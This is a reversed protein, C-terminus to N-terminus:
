ALLQDLLHTQLDFPTSFSQLEPTTCMRILATKSLWRMLGLDAETVQAYGRHVIKSRIEYVRSVKQFVDKRGELERGIFHAALLRLRYSLERNDGGSLFFSEFSIAYLLFAAEPRREVTARGAWQLSALIQDELATRTRSLLGTAYGFGLGREEDIQWLRQLSLEGLSGVWRRGIHFSGWESADQRLQPAVLSETDADGTLRLQSDNYPLLDSYFNIIDITMRLERIALEEAATWDNAPVELIGVPRGLLGNGEFEDDILRIRKEKEADSVSHREVANRFQVRQEEDLAAFRVTGVRTPLGELALGGVPLYVRHLLPERKLLASLEKIAYDVREELGGRRRKKPDLAVFIARQLATEIARKSNAGGNRAAPTLARLCNRYERAELGSLMLTGEDERSFLIEYNVQDTAAELSEHLILLLRRVEALVSDLKPPKTPMERLPQHSNSWQSDFLILTNLTAGSM